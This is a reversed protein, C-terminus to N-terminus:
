GTQPPQWRPQWLGHQVMHRAVRLFERRAQPSVHGRVVLWMLDGDAELPLIVRGGPLSDVYEMDVRPVRTDGGSPEAPGSQDEPTEGATAGEDAM